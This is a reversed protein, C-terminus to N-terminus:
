PESKKKISLYINGIGAAVCIFSTIPTHYNFPVKLIPQLLPTLFTFGYLFRPIPKLKIVFINIVSSIIFLLCSTIINVLLM